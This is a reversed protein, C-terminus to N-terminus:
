QWNSFPKHVVNDELITVYLKTYLHYCIHGSNLDMWHAGSPKTM